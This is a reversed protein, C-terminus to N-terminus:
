GGITVSTGGRGVFPIGIKIGTYEHKAGKFGVFIEANFMLFIQNLGYGIEYYPYNGTSSLYNVYIAERMLTKNLVPLRKLIMRDNELRVHGEFYSKNTSYEYYDMLRFTSGESTGIIFPTNTGFHKYDAFYM